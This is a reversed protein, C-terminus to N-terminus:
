GKERSVIRLEQGIQLVQEPRLGNWRCLQDITIGYRHAISWYSEGSRVRHVGPKSPASPGTSASGKPLRLKQGPQLVDGLALGNIELLAEVTTGHSQAVSWFSEGARVTHNTSAHKPRAAESTRKAVSTKTQSSEARAIARRGGQYVRLRKGVSLIGSRRLGNWQCLDGISVRFRQAIKWLSDGSRVQYRILRVGQPGYVAPRFALEPPAEAPVDEAHHKPVPILLEEFDGLQDPAIDNFALIAEPTTRFTRALRSLREPRTMRHYRYVYSERRPAADLAEACTATVATPVRVEFREDPPTVYARLGPNLLRLEDEAIEAPCAAEFTELHVTTTTTITRYTLEPLYRVDDFGLAAANKAVKAAALIKPVYQRTERRLRRSLRWFDDTGTRRIAWNVKGEGANYAAMALYWDGYREHLDKLHRAAADTSKEFDRREDIWFDIRLGYRSGTSRVFQWPGSAHAWSYASTSFGSEVMSLFVLDKPLDYQELIRWFIPVYRTSRSLWKAFVDRGRGSLYEEWFEVQDHQKIPIDYTIAGTSTLVPAVSSDTEDAPREDDMPLDMVFEADTSTEVDLIDWVGDDDTASGPGTPVSDADISTTSTTALRGPAETGRGSSGACAGCWVALGM